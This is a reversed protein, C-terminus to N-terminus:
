KQAQRRKVFSLLVDEELGSCPKHQQWRVKAEDWWLLLKGPKRAGALMRLVSPMTAM